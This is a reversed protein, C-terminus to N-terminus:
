PGYKAVGLAKVTILSSSFVIPLPLLTLEILDHVPLTPRLIFTLGVFRSLWLSADVLLVGLSIGFLVGVCGLILIATPITVYPNIDTFTAVTKLYPMLENILKHTVLASIILYLILFLYLWVKAINLVDRNLSSIMKSFLSSKTIATGEIPKGLAGYEYIIVYYDCDRPLENLVITISSDLFNNFRHINSVLYITQGIRLSENISLNLGKALEKGISLTNTSLKLLKTLPHKIGSTGNLYTILTHVETGNDLSVNGYTIGLVLYGVGLSKLRSLTKSCQDIVNCVRVEYDEKFVLNSALAESEYTVYNILLYVVTLISALIFFSALVSTLLGKRVVLKIILATYEGLGM